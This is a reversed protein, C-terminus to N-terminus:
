GIRGTPRQSCTATPAHRATIKSCHPTSPGITWPRRQHGIRRHLRRERPHGPLPSRPPYSTTSAKDAIPQRESRGQSRARRRL